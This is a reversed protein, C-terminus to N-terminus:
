LPFGVCTQLLADCLTPQISTTNSHLKLLTSNHAQELALATIEILKLTM